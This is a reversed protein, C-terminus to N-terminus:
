ATLGDLAGLGDDMTPHEVDGQLFLGDLIDFFDDSEFALSGIDSPWIGVRSETNSDQLIKESMEVGDL